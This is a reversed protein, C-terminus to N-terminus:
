FYTSFCTHRTKKQLNLWDAWNQNKVRVKINAGYYLAMISLVRSSLGHRNVWCSSWMIVWTINIITCAFHTTDLYLIFKCMYKHRYKIFWAFHLVFMSPTSCQVLPPSSLIPLYLEAYTMMIIHYANILRYVTIFIWRCITKHLLLLLYSPYISSPMPWWSTNLM